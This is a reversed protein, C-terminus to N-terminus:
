KAAVKRTRKRAPAKTAAEAAKKAARGRPVRETTMATEFAVQRTQAGKGKSPIDKKRQVKAATLGARYAKNYARESEKDWPSLGDKQSKDRYFFEALEEQTGKYQRGSKTCTKEIIMSKSAVTHGGEWTTM